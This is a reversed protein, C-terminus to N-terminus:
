SCASPRKATRNCPRRRTTFLQTAVSEKELSAVLGVSAVNVNASTDHLLNDVVVVDAVTVGGEIKLGTTGLDIVNATPRAERADKSQMQAALLTQAEGPATNPLRSRVDAALSRLSFVDMRLPKNRQLQIQKKVVSQLMSPRVAKVILDVVDKVILDVVDKGEGFLIWEQNDRELAKMLEDLM